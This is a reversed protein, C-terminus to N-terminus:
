VPYDHVRGSWWGRPVASNKGREGVVERRQDGRQLQVPRDDGAPAVAALDGELEGHAV